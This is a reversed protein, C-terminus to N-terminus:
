LVSPRIRVAFLSNLHSGVGSSSVNQRKDSYADNPSRLKLFFVNESAELSKFHSVGQDHQHLFSWPTKYFCTAILADVM